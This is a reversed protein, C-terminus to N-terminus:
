LVLSLNLSNNLSACDKRLQNFNLPAGALALATYGGYSQGIVGVQQLNVPFTPDSQSRRQLEDLLFKVNLARDVFERPNAVENALGRLLSQLQEASSGPNEPIAVVFGYSALQEALYAYSSRNEGLGYSIVIIPAKTNLRPLYLDVLFRSQRQFNNLRLTQKSWTFQGTQELNPLQSFNVQPEQTTAAAKSQQSVLAVARNTQDIMKELDETTQLIPALNVRIGDTPFKQLVNLLTLGQPDDAALILAGRIGYFGSVGAGTQVFQGLRTLLAEGIPSYFFQSVAVPDLDIRNVLLRRLDNRQKPKLRKIYPALDSDVKGTKAYTQLSSVPISRELAGYVFYIREAGLAPRATGVLPLLWMSLSIGVWRLHRPLHVDLRSLPRQRVTTVTPFLCNM